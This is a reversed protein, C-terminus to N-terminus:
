ITDSKIKNVTNWERRTITLEQEIEVEYQMDGTNSTDRLNLIKKKFIVDNSSVYYRGSLFRDITVATEEVEDEYNSVNKMRKEDNEAVFYVPINMGKYINFNCKPLHLNITQRETELSNYFNQLYAMKYYPHVNEISNQIGLWKTKVDNLYYNEGKRGKMVNKSKESNFTRNAEIPFSVIEKMLNDYFYMDKKHGFLSNILNSNNKIRYTNFFATSNKNDPANSLINKSQVFDKTGGYTLGDLQEQNDLVSLIPSLNVFNLNYYYDIWSTFFSNEDKYAHSTVDQIFMPYNKWPIIWNMKDDTIEENSVFGLGTENAIEIMVELSSMDKYVKNYDAYFNPIRLVGQVILTTKNGEIDNSFTTNISTIMFDNRIPKFLNNSSRIFVSLVDGDRPFHRSVFVGSTLDVILTCTPLWDEQSITFMQLELITFTYNNITIQPFTFATESIVRDLGDNQIAERLNKEESM